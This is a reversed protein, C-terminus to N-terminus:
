GVKANGHRIHRKLVLILVNSMYFFIVFMCLYFLFRKKHETKWYGTGGDFTCRKLLKILYFLVKETEERM